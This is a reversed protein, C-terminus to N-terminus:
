NAIGGKTGLYYKFQKRLTTGLLSIITFVHIINKSLRSASGSAPGSRSGSATGCGPRCYVLVCTYGIRQGSRWEAEEQSSPQCHRRAIGEPLAQQCHRSAIGAPICTYFYVLIYYHSYWYCYQLASGIVLVIVVVTVTVIVTSNSNGYRPLCLFVHTCRHLRTHTFTHMYM